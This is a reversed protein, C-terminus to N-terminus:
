PKREFVKWFQLKSSRGRGGLLYKKIKELVKKSRAL